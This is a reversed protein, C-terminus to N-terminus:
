PELFREIVRGVAELTAPSIRDLTDATTHWMPYDFDVIDVAPIGRQLFPLHDDILAWRPEPIFWAGYRLEAAIRWLQERLAPDSNREYYFQPDADGVMDVLIMATPTVAMTAAFHTSGLIWPTGDLEGQDEADFFVLWVEHRLRPRDLVRALELLVAVGSAGDNAGPVPDQPREPDRDARRRTDYHAGVLIGPGRGARAILNRGSIGPATFPQVEFTWGAQTVHDRIYRQVAEWGPSGPYRPGMALQAQVHRFAERGDFRREAMPPLSRCAVLLIPLLLRIPRSSLPAGTRM